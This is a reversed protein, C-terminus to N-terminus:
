RNWIQETININLGEENSPRLDFFVRCAYAIWSYAALALLNCAVQWTDEIYLNAATQDPGIKCIEKGQVRKRGPSSTCIVLNEAWANRETSKM